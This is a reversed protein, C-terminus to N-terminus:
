MSRLGGGGDSETCGSGREVGAADAFGVEVRVNLGTGTGLLAGDATGAGTSDAAIGTGM